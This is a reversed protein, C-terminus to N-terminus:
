YFGSIYSVDFGFVIETIMKFICIMVGDILFVVSSLCKM